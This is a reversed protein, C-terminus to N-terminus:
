VELAEKIIEKSDVLADNFPLVYVYFSHNQLGLSKIKSTIYPEIDVIDKKLKDILNAKFEENIVNSNLEPAYGLFIGFANEPKSLGSDKSPLIIEELSKNTEQDFEENLITDDIFKLEDSLSENIHEIQDFAKDVAETLTNITDTAGLVLQNFPLNNKKLTLIHIGSTKSEYTGSKDQLEMKSFIKPAGLVCELFSYLMIENFHNTTPEDKVRKNYARLASLTLDGLDSRLKYNNRYARSYIYRGINKGIFSKLKSYDIRSSSVNLCYFKLHNNNPISIPQTKVETFVEDFDKTELTSKVKSHVHVTKTELQIDDILPKLTKIYDRTIERVNKNYNTEKEQRQTVVFYYINSIFAAFPFIQANLIDQKTYGEDEFGVQDLDKISDDERIVERLATIILKQDDIKFCPEIYRKFYNILENKDCSSLEEYDVLRIRGSILAGQYDDKKYKDDDKVSKLIMMMLYSQKAFSKNLLLKLITLFTGLCLRKM